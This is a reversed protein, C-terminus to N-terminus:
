QIMNIVLKWITFAGFVVVCSVIYAPLTQKIDAKEESTALMYKIGLVMGVIVAIIMSIGLLVNYLFDSTNSLATDDITTNVGAQGGGKDLFNDAGTFIEDISVAQVNTPYVAILFLSLICICIIIKRM